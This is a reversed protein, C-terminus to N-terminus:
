VCWETLEEITSVLSLPGRELGVVEWLIQYSRSDFWSRQIQLWSSQSSSWLPPWNNLTDSFLMVGEMPSVAQFSQMWTASVLLEVGPSSARESVVTTPNAASLYQVQYGPAGDHQVTRTTVERYTRTSGPTTIGNVAASSSPRSVSTQLDELLADLLLLIFWQMTTM